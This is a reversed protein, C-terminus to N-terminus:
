VTPYSAYSAVGCMNNKNRAILFYGDMGWETGWSNKVTYYDQGPGMTGYGVIAASHDLNTTSCNPDSYIGSTYFQFSSQSADIAM